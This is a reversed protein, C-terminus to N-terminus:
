CVIYAASEAEFQETGLTLNTRDVWWREDPTGLHGCYLHALEHAVTAYLAPLDFASNITLRYRAPIVRKEQKGDKRRRTLTVLDGPRASGIYGASGRGMQVQVIVILDRSCN